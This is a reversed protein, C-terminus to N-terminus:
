KGKRLLAVGRRENDNFIYPPIVEFGGEAFESSLESEDRFDHFFDLEGYLTDGPEYWLNGMTLYAFLKRLRDVRPSFEPVPNWSFM